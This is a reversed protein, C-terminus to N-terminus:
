AVDRASTGRRISAPGATQWRAREANEQVEFRDLVAHEAAEEVRERKGADGDGSARLDEGV